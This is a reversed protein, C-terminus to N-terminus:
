RLHESINKETLHRLDATRKVDDDSIFLYTPFHGNVVRIAQIPSITVFRYSESQTETQYQRISASDGWIFYIVRSSDLQNHKVIESMKLSSTRCYQCGSSVVGVIYNGEDFHIEQMTSDAILANFATENFDQNGSKSFLDYLDDMPFLVFPPVFSALFALVLAFTKFRFPYDEENRVFMLLAIGVLNKILSISPKIEVLDGMCHCNSDNRFLIVYVLLLSFGILMLLTVWWAFKYKVKIILLIGALLECAIIVRAALGCLTLNMLNFSYIYLEFNDLSLLKLIASVIFFLGLGIRIAAKLYKQFKDM